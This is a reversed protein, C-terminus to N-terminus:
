VQIHHAFRREAYTWDNDGDNLFYANKLNGGSKLIRFELKVKDKGGSPPMVSIDSKLQRGIEKVVKEQMDDEVFFTTKQFSSHITSDIIVPRLPHEDLSIGCRPCRMEEPYEEPEDESFTPGVSIIQPWGHEGDLQGSAFDFVLGCNPCMWREVSLPNDVKFEEPQPTTIEM